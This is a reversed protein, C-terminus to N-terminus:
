HRVRRVNLAKLQSALAQAIGLFAGTRESPEKLQSAWGKAETLENSITQGYAIERLADGRLAHDDIRAAISHAFTFDGTSAVVSAAYYWGTLQASDRLGTENAALAEEVTGRGASADGLGYQARAIDVLKRVISEPDKHAAELALNFANTAKDHNGAVEERQAVGILATLRASDDTITMVTRWSDADGRQGAAAKLADQVSRRDREDTVSELLSLALATDGLRAAVGAIESKMRRDTARSGDAIIQAGVVVRKADEIDNADILELAFQVLDNAMHRDAALRIAAEAASAAWAPENKHHCHVAIRRYLYARMDPSIIRETAEMADSYMSREVQQTVILDLVRDSETTDDTPLAAIRKAFDARTDAPDLAHAIDSAYEKALHQQLYRIFDRDELLRSLEILTNVDDTVRSEIFRANTTAQILATRANVLASRLESRLRAEPLSPSSQAFATGCSLVSALLVGACRALKM